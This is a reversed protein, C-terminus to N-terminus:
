FILACLMFAFLMLKSVTDFLLFKSVTDLRQQSNESMMRYFIWADLMYFLFSAAAFGGVTSKESQISDISRMTLVAVWVLKLSQRLDKIWNGYQNSKLHSWILLIGLTLMCRIRFPIRDLRTTKLADRQIEDITMTSTHLFRCNPCVSDSPRKILTENQNTEVIGILTVSRPDFIRVDYRRQHVRQPTCPRDNSLM